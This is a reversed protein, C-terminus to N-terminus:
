LGTMCTVKDEFPDNQLADDLFTMHGKVHRDHHRKLLLAFSIFNQCGVDSRMALKTHPNVLTTCM